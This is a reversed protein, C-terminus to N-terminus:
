ASDQRDSSRKPIQLGGVEVSLFALSQMAALRDPEDDLILITNPKM